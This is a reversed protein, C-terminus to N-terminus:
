PFVYPTLIQYHTQVTTNIDTLDNNYSTIECVIRGRYGGKCHQKM